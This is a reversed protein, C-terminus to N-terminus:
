VDFRCDGHGSVLCLRGKLSGSARCFIKSTGTAGLRSVKASVAIHERSCFEKFAYSHAIMSYTSKDDGM